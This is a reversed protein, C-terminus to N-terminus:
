LKRLMIDFTIEPAGTDSMKKYQFYSTLVKKVYNRTEPYPIDEIFEDVQSYNGGLQWRRVAQEGANYAAVVHALSPFEESLTKLYYSGLHVNNRINTISAEGRIGLKLHRDLRYATQPMVQMLGLAGAASKANADFRSEERMVSLVIMPDVGYEETVREVDKWYALPYRFRHL